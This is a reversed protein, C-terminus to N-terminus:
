VPAGGGDLRGALSMVEGTPENRARRDRDSELVLNASPRYEYTASKRAGDAM